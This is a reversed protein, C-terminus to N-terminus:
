PSVGGNYSWRPDLGLHTLIKQVVDQVVITAIFRMESGCNKCLSVDIGFARSLLRTWSGRQPKKEEQPKDKEAKIEARTKGPIM